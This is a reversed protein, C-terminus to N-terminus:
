DRKPADERKGSPPTLPANPDKLKLPRGYIDRAAKSDVMRQFELATGDDRLLKMTDGSCTVDYKRVMGPQEWVVRGDNDISSGIISSATMRSRDNIEFRHTGSLSTRQAARDDPTNWSMHMEFSFYIGSVVMYGAEQRRVKDLTPSDLDKLSWTGQMEDVLAQIAAKTGRTPTPLTAPVDQPATRLSASLCLVSLSSLLLAARM